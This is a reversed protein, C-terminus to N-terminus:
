SCNIANKLFENLRRGAKFHDIVFELLNKQLLISPDSYEKWYYFQKNAIFPQIAAMEKFESPIRKNKTGKITGFTKKFVTNDIINQFKKNHKAISERINQLNNTDPGHCGGAIVITNHGFQVYFGPYKWNKKGGKALAAGVHTKYPKKDKSFRIDRNIRFIANKPAIEIEPDFFISHEILETVFREFPIKVYEDYEKKHEHFWERQNNKSLDKFFTDFQKSFYPM